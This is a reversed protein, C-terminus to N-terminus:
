KEEWNEHKAWAQIAKWNEKCHKEMTDGTCPIHLAKQFPNKVEPTLWKKKYNKMSERIGQIRGDSDLSDAGCLAMVHQNIGIAEELAQLIMQVTPNDKEMEKLAKVYVKLDM